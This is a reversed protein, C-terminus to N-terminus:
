RKPKIMMRRNGEVWLYIFGLIAAVAIIVVVTKGLFIFIAKWDPRFDRIVRYLLFGVVTVFTAEAFSLFKYGLAGCWDLKKHKPSFFINIEGLVIIIIISIIVPLKEFHLEAYGGAFAGFILALIYSIFFPIETMVSVAMFILLTFLFVVFLALSSSPDQLYQESTTTANCLFFIILFSIVFIYLHARLGKIKINEIM